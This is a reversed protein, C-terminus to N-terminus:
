WCSTSVSFFWYGLFHVYLFLKFPLQLCANLFMSAMFWFLVTPSHSFFDTFKFYLSIAWVPVPWWEPWHYYVLSCFLCFGQGWLAKRQSASVMFLRFIIEATFSAVKSHWSWRTHAYVLSLVLVTVCKIHFFSALASPPGLYSVPCNCQPPMFSFYVNGGLTMSILFSSLCLRM